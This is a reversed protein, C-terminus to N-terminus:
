IEEYHEMEMGFINAGGITIPTPTPLPLPTSELPVTIYEVRQRCTQNLADLAEQQKNEPLSILLTANRKGLFGGISSLQEVSFGRATLATEANEVDQAQIVAILLYNVDPPNM